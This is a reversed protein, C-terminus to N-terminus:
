RRVRRRSKTTAKNGTRAVAKTGTSTTNSAVKGSTKKAAPKARGAPAKAVKKRSARNAARKPARKKRAPTDTVPPVMMPDSVLGDAALPVYAAMREEAKGPQEPKLADKAAKSATDAIDKLKDSIKELVSKDKAM